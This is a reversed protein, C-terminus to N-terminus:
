IYKTLILGIVISVHKIIHIWNQSEQSNFIQEEPPLLSESFTESMMKTSSNKEGWSTGFFFSHKFFHYYIPSLDPSYLPHPLIVCALMQLIQSSLNHSKHKREIRNIKMKGIQELQRVITSHDINLKNVIERTATTWNM